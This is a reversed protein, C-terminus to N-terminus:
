QVNIVYMHVYINQSAVMSFNAQLPMYLNVFIYVSLASDSSGEVIHIVEDWNHM